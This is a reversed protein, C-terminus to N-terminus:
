SASQIRFVQITIRTRHTFGVREYVSRAGSNHVSVHLFARRGDATIDAALRSVLGAAYGSGRATPHTCVDSIETADALHLRKGAMAVLVGADRVGIYGGLTHTRAMFPGPDTIKVLELMDDIDDDALTVTDFEGIPAVHRDYVMQDFLGEFVVEFSNPTRVTGTSMIVAIDNPEAIQQVAAIGVNLPDPVGFFSSVDPPYRLAQETGRAISAHPGTLAHWIPNDLPDSVNTSLMKTSLMRTPLM